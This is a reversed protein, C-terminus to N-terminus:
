KLWNLQCLQSIIKINIKDTFTDLTDLILYEKDVLPRRMM